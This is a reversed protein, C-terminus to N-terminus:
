EMKDAKKFFKRKFFFFGALWFPLTFPLMRYNHDRIMIYCAFILFGFWFLFFSVKFLRDFFLAFKKKNLLLGLNKGMSSISCLLFPIFLIKPSPTKALFYVLVVTTVIATALKRTIFGSRMCNEGNRLLIEVSANNAKPLFGRFM